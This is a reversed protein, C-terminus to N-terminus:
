TRILQRAVRAGRRLRLRPPRCACACGRGWNGHLGYMSTPDIQKGPAPKFGDRPTTPVHGAGGGVPKFCWACRATPDAAFGDWCDEHVKPGDEPRRDDLPCYDQDLEIELGCFVCCENAEREVSSERRLFMDRPGSTVVEGAKAQQELLRQQAQARPSALVGPDGAAAAKPIPTKCTPCADATSWVLTGCSTCVVKSSPEEKRLNQLGLKAIPPVGGVPTAKGLGLKPITPTDM